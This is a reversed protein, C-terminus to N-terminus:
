VDWRLRIEAGRALEDAGEADSDYSDIPIASPAAPDPRRLRARRPPSVGSSSASAVFATQGRESVVTGADPAYAQKLRARSALERASSRRKPAMGFKVIQPTHTLCASDARGFASRTARLHAMCPMRRRRSPESSHAADHMAVVGVAAAPSM